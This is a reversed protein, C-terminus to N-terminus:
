DADPAQGRPIAGGPPPFPQGGNHDRQLQQLVLSVGEEIIRQVTWGQGVAWVAARCQELAEPTLRAGVPVKQRNRQEDFTKDGKRKAGM